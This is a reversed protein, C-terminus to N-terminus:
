PKPKQATLPLTLTNTADSLVFYPDPQGLFDDLRSGMRRGALQHCWTLALSGSGHRNCQTLAQQTSPSRLTPRTPARDTAFALTRPAPTQSLPRVPWKLRACGVPHQTRLFEGRRITGLCSPSALSFSQDASQEFWVSFGGGRQHGRPIRRGLPHVRHCLRVDRWEWARLHRRRQKAHVGIGIAIGVSSITVSLPDVSLDTAPDVVVPPLNFTIVEEYPEGATADALTEPCLVPFDAAACSLDPECNNCQASGQLALGLSLMACFLLSITQM